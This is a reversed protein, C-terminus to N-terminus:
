RGGGPRPAVGADAVAVLARVTGGDNWRGEITLTVPDKPVGTENREVLDILKDAAVAGMLAANQLIGSLRGGPEHVSLSVVGVDAPVRIGRDALQRLHEETLLAIVVDPRHRKIWRSVEDPDWTQYLLRPVGRAFGLKERHLVFAAEWRLELRRSLPDDMAFGPRRYGRRWCENLALIMSQYHDNSTRHFVPQAISLGHAVVSFYPWTLDIQMGLRPLPTLFLGRIGRHRLMESFRQNTMGDRYLWHHSLQYGRAEAREEAGAHLLRVLPSPTKKWGDHTEFATVFALAPRQRSATRRSRRIKMLASVYPHPRYGLAAAIGLVADRTRPPISPKGGFCKSVTAVSVKARLAVDRMTVPM